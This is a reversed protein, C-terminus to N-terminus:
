NLERIMQELGDIWANNGNLSEVMQLQEGGHERFLHDYEYEIEVTTELCDAVFSPAFILIKKTGAKAKEILTKDTFPSMWNKSLRSQFTVSYDDSSLGIEAAILRATEYCAAKYCLKGEPITETKCSCTLCDKGPHLKNIQRLPLGHFSFLVHNFSSVDYNKAQAAFAKIFATHDHFSSLMQINPFTKWGSIQKMILEFVSGTTASAYQPFVPIIIIKKFIQHEVQKLITKLDPNGYRMANFIMYNDGMRNQIESAVLESYYLLPSGKDSWLQEYLKTSKPARFPVIILNVLAKQFVWPLDIVRRDNLFKFLYRRVDSLKPSDPTGLNVLIVATQDM